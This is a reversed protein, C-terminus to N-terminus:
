DHKYDGIDTSYITDIIYDTNEKTYKISDNVEKDTLKYDIDNTVTVINDEVIKIIRERTYKYSKDGTLNYDYISNVIDTLINDVTEHQMLRVVVDEDLTTLKLITKFIETKNGNDDYIFNNFFKSELNSHIVDSRISKSVATFLNLSVVLLVLIISVFSILFKKMNDGIINHIINFFIIM